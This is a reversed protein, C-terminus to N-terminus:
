WGLLFNTTMGDSNSSEYTQLTTYVNSNVKDLVENKTREEEKYKRIRNLAGTFAFTTLFTFGGIIPNEPNFLDFKPEYYKIEVDKSINLKLKNFFTVKYKDGINKCEKVTYTRNYVEIIDYKNFCKNTYIVREKHIGDNVLYNGKEIFNYNNKVRYPQFKKWHTLFLLTGESVMEDKLGAYYGSFNPRNMVRKQIKIFMNALEDSVKGNKMDRLLTKTVNKDSLYNNKKRGM